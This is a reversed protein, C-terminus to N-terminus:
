RRRYLTSGQARGTGGCSACYKRYGPDTWSLGSSYEKYGKGRCQLCKKAAM